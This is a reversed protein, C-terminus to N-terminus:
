EILNIKERVEYVAKIRQQTQNIYTLITSIDTEKRMITGNSHVIFSEYVVQNGQIKFNNPRLNRPDSKTQEYVFHNGDTTNEIVLKDVNTLEKWRAIENGVETYGYYVVAAAMLTEDSKLHESTLEDLQPEKKNENKIQSVNVDHSGTKRVSGYITIGLMIVLGLTIMIKVIKRM